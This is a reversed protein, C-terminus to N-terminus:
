TTESLQKCFYTVKPNRKCRGSTPGSLFKKELMKWDAKPVRALAALQSMFKKEAVKLHSDVQEKLQHLLVTRQILFEMNTEEELLLMSITRKQWLVLQHQIRRPLLPNAKVSVLDTNLNDELAEEKSLKQGKFTEQLISLQIKKDKRYLDMIEEIKQYYNQILNTIGEMTVYVSETAREVLLNKLKQRNDDHNQKLSHVRAQHTLARGIEQAMHQQLLDMFVQSEAALQQHILIEAKKWLKRQEESFKSMENDQLKMNGDEFQDWIPPEKMRQEELENLLCKAKFLKMEKLIMLSFHRLTLQRVMPQLAVQHELIIGESVKEDLDSQRLLFGQIIKEQKDVLYKQKVSNIVKEDMWVQKLQALEEQFQKLHQKREAAAAKKRATLDQLLRSRLSEMASLSVSALKPLTETFLEEILIDLTRSSTSHLNKWLKTIAKVDNRDEKDEVDYRTQRHREALEHYSQIFEIPTFMQKAQEKLNMKEDRETKELQKRLTRHRRKMELILDKTQKACENIYTDVSDQVSHQLRALVEEKQWFALVSDRNLVSLVSTLMMLKDKSEQQVLWTLSHLSKTMFEWRLLKDLIVTIQFTLSDTLLNEVQSMKESMNRIIEQGTIKSLKSHNLLSFRASEIQKFFGSLQQITYQLYNHEDQETEELTYHQECDKRNAKGRLVLQETKELKELEKEQTSLIDRYFEEDIKEKLYLDNLQIKLLQLFMMYKEQRLEADLLRLNQLCLRYLGLEAEPSTYGLVESFFTVIPVTNNENFVTTSPPCDGPFCCSGREGKHDLLESDSLVFDEETRKTSDRQKLGELLSPHSSGDALPRFKQNIPYVVRAKLAFAAINSNLSTENEEYYPSAGRKARREDENSKFSQSDDSYESCSDDDTGSSCPEKRQLAAELVFIYLLVASAIGLGFGLVVAIALVAPNVQLQSSPITLGARGSCSALSPSSRAAM